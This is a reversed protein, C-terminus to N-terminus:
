FNEIIPDVLNELGYETELISISPKYLKNRLKYIINTLTKLKNNLLMSLLYLIFIKNM